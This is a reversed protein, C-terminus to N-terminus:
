LVGVLVLIVVIVLVVVLLEIVGVEGEDLARHLDAPQRHMVDPTSTTPNEDAGNAVAYVALAAVLAGLLGYWEVDTYNGDAGATIGWTAVAGLAALIAKLYVPRKM